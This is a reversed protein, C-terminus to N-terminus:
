AGKCQKRLAGIAATAGSASFGGLEQWEDGNSASSILQLDFDRGRLLREVQPNLPGSWDAKGPEQTVAQVVDTEDESGHFALLLPQGAGPLELGGGASPVMTLYLGGGPQCRLGVPGLMPHGAVVALAGKGKGAFVWKEATYDPGAAIGQDEPDLMQEMSREAAAGQLRSVEVWKRGNWQSTIVCSDAGTRGCFCGHLPVRLGMRGMGIDVVRWTHVNGEYIRALGRPGSGFIAIVCGASGCWQSYGMNSCRNASYEVVWDPRGDNTLETRTAFPAPGVIYKGGEAKCDAKVQDFVAQVERPWPTPAATPQATLPASFAIAVALSILRRM